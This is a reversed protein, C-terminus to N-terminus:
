AVLERWVQRQLREGTPRFPEWRLRMRAEAPTRDAKQGNCPACCAATNEWTSLGGRSVPLLHDITAGVGGCYICTHRDRLLVSSRSAAGGARPVYRVYVWRVLRVVLPFPVVLSPSRVERAPDATHVVAEGTVVLVVARQWPVTALVTGCANLVVTTM